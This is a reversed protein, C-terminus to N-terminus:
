ELREEVALPSLRDAIRYEALKQIQRVRERTVKLKRGIWELTKGEKRWVSVQRMRNRAEQTMRTLKKRNKEPELGDGECRSCAIIDEYCNVGQWGLGDCWTCIQNKVLEAIEDQYVTPCDKPLEKIYSLICRAMYAPIEVAGRGTMRLQSANLIGTKTTMCIIAGLLPRCGGDTRKPLKLKKAM